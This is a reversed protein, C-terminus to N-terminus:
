SNSLSFQDGPASFHHPVTIPLGPSSLPVFLHQVPSTLHLCPRPWGESSPNLCRPRRLPLGLVCLTPCPVQHGGWFAKLPLPDQGQGDGMPAPCDNGDGGLAASLMRSIPFPETDGHFRPWRSEMGLPCALVLPCTHRAGPLTAGASGPVPCPAVSVPCWVRAERWGPTGVCLGAGAEPPSPGRLTIPHSGQTIGGCGPPEAGGCRHEAGPAWPQLQRKGM